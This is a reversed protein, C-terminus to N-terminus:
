DLEDAPGGETSNDSGPSPKHEYRHDQKRWQLVVSAYDSKDRRQNWGGPGEFGDKLIAGRVVVRPDGSDRRRNQAPPDILTRIPLSVAEGVIIAEGTRLIPLM